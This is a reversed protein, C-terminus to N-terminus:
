VLGSIHVFCTWKCCTSLRWKSIPYDGSGCQISRYEVSIVGAFLFM